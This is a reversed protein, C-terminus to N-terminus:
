GLRPIPKPESPPMNRGFGVICWLLFLFYAAIVAIFFIAIGYQTKTLHKRQAFFVICVTIFAISVFVVFYPQLLLNLLHEIGTNM